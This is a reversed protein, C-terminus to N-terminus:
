APQSSHSSLAAFATLGYLNTKERRSVARPSVLVILRSVPVGEFVLFKRFPRPRYPRIVKGAVPALDQTSWEDILGPLCELVACREIDHADDDLFNGAECQILIELFANELGETDTPQREVGCLVLFIPQRVHVLPEFVPAEAM